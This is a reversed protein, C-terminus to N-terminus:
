FDAQVTEQGSVPTGPRTAIKSGIQSRRHRRIIWEAVLLNPLWCLWAIARYATVFEIGLVVVAIPMWVRLMAGALTLAYNRIMWQRHGEIEKNRIHQYAMYGSFLWLIALTAFGLETIVGGYGFQAMYLGSLGGFLVSVLYARGLWRHLKLRRGKRLNPLFQFPGIVIALMSALIHVMLMTHHASYVAKQEAFSFDEPKLTLYGSSILVPYMAMLLLFAWGIKQWLGPKRASVIPSKM